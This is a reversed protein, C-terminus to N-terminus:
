IDPIRLSHVHVTSPRRHDYLNVNHGSQGENIYSMATIVNHYVFSDIPFNVLLESAVCWRDNKWDSNTISRLPPFFGVVRNVYKSYFLSKFFVSPAILYQCDLTVQLMPYM